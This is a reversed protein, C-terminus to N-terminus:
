TISMNGADLHQREAKGVFVRIAFAWATAAFRL